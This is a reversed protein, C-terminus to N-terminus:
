RENRSDTFRNTPPIHENYERADNIKAIELLRAADVTLKDALNMNQALKGAIESAITAALADAFDPTWADPNMQASVYRCNCPRANTLIMGSAEMFSARPARINLSSRVDVVRLCDSPKAYAYDYGFPPTTAAPSLVALKRAFNWSHCRLLERALTDFIVSADWELDKLNDALPLGTKMLARNIIQLKDM